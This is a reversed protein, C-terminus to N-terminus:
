SLGKNPVSDIDGYEGLALDFNDHLGYGKELLTVANSLQDIGVRKQDPHSTEALNFKAKQLVEMITVNM